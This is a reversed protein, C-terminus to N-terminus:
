PGAELKRLREVLPGSTADNPALVIARRLARIAEATRGLRQSVLGLGRFASANNPDLQSAERYLDASAGLHGQVLERQAREILTRANPAPTPEAAATGAGNPLPTTSAVSPALPLNTTAPPLNAGLQAGRSKGYARRPVGARDAGSTREARDVTAARAALEADDLDAGSGRRTPAGDSAGRGRTAYAAPERADTGNARVATPQTDPRVYDAAKLQSAVVGEAATPPPEPMGPRLQAVRERPWALWLLGLLGALVGVVGAIRQMRRRRKRMVELALAPPESPVTPALNTAGFPMELAATGSRLRERSAADLGAGALKPMGVSSHRQAADTLAHIFAGATPYRQDPERALGTTLVAEIGEPIEFGAIESPRPPETVLKSQMLALTNSSSFPPRGTMLEFAVTALSYADSRASPTGGRIVEPALYVPTGFVVGEATLRTHDPSVLGVIGFDLLLVSESGDERVVYMLNEPKVDRHLFGKAHILDLAAAAGHLLECTRRPTQPGQTRLLINLDIGQQKAMVLYPRGDPLSGMDSVDVINGHTLQSATRAERLFRQVANPDGAIGPGLVKIAVQRGLKEHVGDYVVGMGGRGLVGHVLYRGDILAGILPDHNDARQEMM